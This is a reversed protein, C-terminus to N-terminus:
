TKRDSRCFRGWRASRRTNEQIFLRLDMCTKGRYSYLRCHYKEALRSAEDYSNFVAAIRGIQTYQEM